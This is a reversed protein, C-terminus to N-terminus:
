KQASLRPISCDLIEATFFHGIRPNLEVSTIQVLLIFFNKLKAIQSADSAIRKKGRDGESLQQPKSVLPWGVPFRRSQGLYGFKEFTWIEQHACQCAPPFEADAASDCSM